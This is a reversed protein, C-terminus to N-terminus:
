AGRHYVKLLSSGRMYLPHNPEGAGTVKLCFVPEGLLAIVEAPRTGADAGHNGWGVLVRSSLARMQRLATDNPGGPQGVSPTTWLISPDASVISFLNGVLVGGFGWGKAFSIVRRITPDDKIDNATSPNLGVFLLRDGRPNWTRWLAYRFRRNPDSFVAGSIGEGINMEGTEVNIDM